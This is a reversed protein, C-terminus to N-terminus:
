RIERLDTPAGGDGRAQLMLNQKECLALLADAVFKLDETTM